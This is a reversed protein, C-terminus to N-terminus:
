NPSLESKHRTPSTTQKRDRKVLFYTQLQAKARILALAWSRVLRICDRLAVTLLARKVLFYTQLQAEARILALAWSRVLKLPPKNFQM